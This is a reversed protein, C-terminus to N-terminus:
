PATALQPLFPLAQTSTHHTNESSYTSDCTSNVQCTEATAQFSGALIRIWAPVSSTERSAFGVPFLCSSALDPPCHWALLLPPFVQVPDRALGQSM